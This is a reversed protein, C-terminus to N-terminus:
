NQKMSIHLPPSTVITRTVNSFRPKPKLIFRLVKIHLPTTKKERRMFVNSLIIDIEYDRHKERADKKGEGGRDGSFRPQIGAGDSSVFTSKKRHLVSNLALPFKYNM